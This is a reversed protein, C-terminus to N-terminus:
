IIKRSMIYLQIAIGVDGLFDGGGGGLFSGGLLTDEVILFVPPRLRLTLRLREFLFRPTWLLDERLV